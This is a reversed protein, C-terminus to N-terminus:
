LIETKQMWDPSPFFDFAVGAVADHRDVPIQDFEAKQSKHLLAAPPALVPQDGLNVPTRRIPTKRAGECLGEAMRADLLANRIKAPIEVQKAGMEIQFELPRYTGELNALPEDPVLQAIDRFLMIIGFPRRDLFELFPDVPEIDVDRIVAAWIAVAIITVGILFDDVKRRVM